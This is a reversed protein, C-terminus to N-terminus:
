IGFNCESCNSFSFLCFYCFIFFSFSFSFQVKGLIKGNEYLNVKFGLGNGCSVVYFDYKGRPCLKKSKKKQKKSKLM